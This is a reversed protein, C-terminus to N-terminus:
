RAAKRARRAALFADVDARRFFRQGSETKIAKLQGTREWYRVTDPVKGTHRSVDGTTLFDSDSTTPKTTEM